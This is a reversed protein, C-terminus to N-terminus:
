GTGRARGRRPVPKKDNSSKDGPFTKGPAEEYIGAVRFSLTKVPDRDSYIFFPTTDSRENMEEWLFRVAIFNV